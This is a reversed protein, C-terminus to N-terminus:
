RLMLRQANKTLTVIKFCFIKSILVITGNTKNLNFQEKRGKKRDIKTTLICFLVFALNILM